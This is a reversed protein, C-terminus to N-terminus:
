HKEDTCAVGHGREKTTEKNKTCVLHEIDDTWTSGHPLTANHYMVSASSKKLRSIGM